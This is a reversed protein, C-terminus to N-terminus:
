QALKLLCKACVKYPKKTAKKPCLMFVFFDRKGCVTNISSISAIYKRSRYFSTSIYCPDYYFFSSGIRSLPQIVRCLQVDEQIEEEGEPLSSLSSSPFISVIFGIDGKEKAYWLNPKVSPSVEVLRVRFHNKCLGM